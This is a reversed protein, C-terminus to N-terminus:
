RVCSSRDPRSKRAVTAFVKTQWGYHPRHFLSDNKLKASAIAKIRQPHVMVMRDAEPALARAFAPWFGSTEVVV